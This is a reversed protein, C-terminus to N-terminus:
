VRGLWLCLLALWPACAWSSLSRGSRGFWSLSASLSRFVGVWSGPLWAAGSVSWSLAPLSGSAAASFVPAALARLAALSSPFGLAALARARFGAVASRLASSGAAGSALFRPLAGSACACCLARFVASRAGRLRGSSAFARFAGLVPCLGSGVAAGFSASSLLLVSGAFPSVVAARVGVRLGGRVVSAAAVASPAVPVVPAAVASRAGSGAPRFVPVWAGGSGSASAPVAAPVAARRRAVCGRVAASLLGPCVFRRWWFAGAGLVPLSGPSSVLAGLRGARFASLWSLVSLGLGAVLGARVRGGSVLASSAFGLVVSSGGVVRSPVGSPVFLVSGAVPVSGVRRRARGSASPASLVPCWSFGPLLLAGCAAGRSVSSPLRVLFFVGLFWFASVRLVWPAVGRLGRWVVRVSYVLVCSLVLGRGSLFCCFCACLFGGFSRPCLCAFVAFGCWWLVPSVRLFVSWFVRLFRLVAGGCAGRRCAGCVAGLTETTVCYCSLSCPRAVQKKKNRAKARRWRPLPPRYPAATGKGLSEGIINEIEQRKERSM